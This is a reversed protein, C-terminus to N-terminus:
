QWDTVEFELDLMNADFDSEVERGYKDLVQVKTVECNCEWNTETFVQFAGWADDTFKTKTEHARMEITLYIAADDPLEAEVEITQYEDEMRDIADQIQRQLEFYAESTIKMPQFYKSWLWGCLVAFAICGLTWFINCSGDMEEACGLFIAAVTLFGLLTGIIKKMTVAIQEERPVRVWVGEM